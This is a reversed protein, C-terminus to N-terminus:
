NPQCLTLGNKRLLRPVDTSNILNPEMRKLARVHTISQVLLKPLKGRTFQTEYTFYESKFGMIPKEGSRIELRANQRTAASGQDYTPRHHVGTRKSRITDNGLERRATTM